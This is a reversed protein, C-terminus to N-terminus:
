NRNTSNKTANALVTKNKDRLTYYTTVVNLIIGSKKMATSFRTINEFETDLTGYGSYEWDILGVIDMTKPNVIINNCIDNHNWGDGPVSTKLDSIEKPDANHVAFIFEALQKGLKAGNAAIVDVPFNNLNKGPIFNYRYFTFGDSEIIDIKPIQFPSIAAFADTIRKERIIKNIPPQGDYLKRIKFVYKNDVIFGINWGGKVLRTKRFNLEPFAHKLANYKRRFNYLQVVRLNERLGRFPVFKTLFDGLSFLFKMM